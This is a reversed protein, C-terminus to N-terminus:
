KKLSLLDYWRQIWNKWGPIMSSFDYAFVTQWHPESAWAVQSSRRSNSCTLDHHVSWWFSRSESGTGWSLDITFWRLGDQQRGWVNSTQGIIAPHVVWFCVNNFLSVVPKDRFRYHGVEKYGAKIESGPDGGDENYSWIPWPPGEEQTTLLNNGQGNM